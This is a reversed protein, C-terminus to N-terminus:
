AYLLFFGVLATYSGKSRDICLFADFLFLISNHKRIKKVVGATSFLFLYSSMELSLSSIQLSIQKILEERKIKNSNDWTQHFNLYHSSCKGSDKSSPLSNESRCIFGKLNCIHSYEIIKPFNRFENFYLLFFFTFFFFYLFVLM